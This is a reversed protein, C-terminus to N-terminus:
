IDARGLKVDRLSYIGREIDPTIALREVLYRQREADIEPETRWPLDQVQRAHFSITDSIKEISQHSTSM